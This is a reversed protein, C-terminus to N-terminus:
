SPTERDFRRKATVYRGVALVLGTALFFLAPLAWFCGAQTANAAGPEACSSEAAAICDRWQWYRVYFAYAFFGGLLFSLLSSIGSLGFRPFRSQARM